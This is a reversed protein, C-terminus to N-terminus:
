LGGVEFREFVMLGAGGPQVTAYWPEEGSLVRIVWSPWASAVFPVLYPADPGQAYGHSGVACNMDADTLVRHRAVAVGSGDDTAAAM